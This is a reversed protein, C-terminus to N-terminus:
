TLTERLAPPRSYCAPRVVVGYGSVGVDHEALSSPASCLTQSFASVDPSRRPFVHTPVARLACRSVM